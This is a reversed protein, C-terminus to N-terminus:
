GKGSMQKEKFTTKGQLKLSLANWDMKPGVPGCGPALCGADIAAIIHGHWARSFVEVTVSRKAYTRAQSLASKRTDATVYGLVYCHPQPGKVVYSKM